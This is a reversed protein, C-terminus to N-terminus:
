RVYIQLRQKGEETLGLLDIEAKLQEPTGQGSIYGNVRAAATSNMLERADPYMAAFEKFLDGTCRLEYKQHHDEAVYFRTLPLIATKVPTGREEEIRAKGMEIIRKQEETEYFIASMYQRKGKVGCPNHAKWVVDILQGYTLRAPDYDVQISETHDGLLRYTPDPQTGGAYGVRTRVVGPIVGFKGDPCWFCGLAFTATEVREPAAADLAPRAPTAKMLTVPAGEQSSCGIAAGLILAAITTRM